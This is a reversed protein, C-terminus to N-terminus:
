VPTLNFIISGDATHAYSDLCKGGTGFEPRHLPLHKMCSGKISAAKGGGNSWTEGMLVGARFLKFFITFVLIKLM